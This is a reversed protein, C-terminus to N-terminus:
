NKEAKCAFLATRDAMYVFFFDNVGNQLQFLLLGSYWRGSCFHQRSLPPTEDCKESVECSKCGM